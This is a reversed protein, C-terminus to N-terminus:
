NLINYLRLITIMSQETSYSEKPSFNNDGTGNMIGHQKMTYVSNKAWDSIYIDDAFLEDDARLQEDFLQYVRHLITAAQERTLYDQPAFKGDGVGNIIGLDSLMLVKQNDTDTYATSLEDYTKEKVIPLEYILECFSERTINKRYRSQLHEPILGLEKAKDVDEKAWDSPTDYTCRVVNGAICGAKGLGRGIYAIGNKFEGGMMWRHGNTEIQSLVIEGKENIYSTDGYRSYIMNQVVSAMGESFATQVYYGKPLALMYEGDTNIYGEFGYTSVGIYGNDGVKTVYNYNSIITNGKSNVLRTGVSDTVAFVDMGIHEIHKANNVLVTGDTATVKYVNNDTFSVIYGNETIQTVNDDTEILVNHNEDTIINNGDDFVLIYEKVGDFIFPEGSQYKKILSENGDVLCWKGDIKVKYLEDGFRFANDEGYKKVFQERIEDQPETKWMQEKTIENGYLDLYKTEGSYLEFVYGISAYVNINKVNGYDIYEYDYLPETKTEPKTCRIVGYYTGDTVTFDDKNTVGWLNADEWWYSNDVRINTGSFDAIINGDKDILKKSLTYAIGNRYGHSWEDSEFAVNGNYDLVHHNWSGDSNARSAFAVGENYSSIMRYNFDTVEKGDLNYYGGHDYSKKAAIRGESIDSIDIHELPLITNGEFDIVGYLTGYEDKDKRTNEVSVVILRNDIYVKNPQYQLTPSIVINGQVDVLGYFGDKSTVYFTNYEDYLPKIYDYEFEGVKTGEYDLFGYKGEYKAVFLWGEYPMQIEDYIAPIVVEFNNNVTGVKYNDFYLMHGNFFNMCDYQNKQIFKSYAQTSVLTKGHYVGFEGLYYSLPRDDNNGGHDIFITEDSIGIVNGDYEHSVYGQYGLVYTKGDKGALANFEDFEGIYDYNDSLKNGDTDYIAVTGDKHTAKYIGFNKIREVRSFELPMIYEYNDATNQAYVPLALILITLILIFSTIRKM